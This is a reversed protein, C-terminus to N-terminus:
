FESLIKECRRAVDLWKDNRRIEALPLADTLSSDILTLFSSRIDLLEAKMSESVSRLPALASEHLYSHVDISLVEFVVYDFDEDSLRPMSALQELTARARNHRDDTQMTHNLSTWQANKFKWPQRGSL